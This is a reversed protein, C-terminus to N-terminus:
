SSCPSFYKGKFLCQYHKLFCEEIVFGTIFPWASFPQLKSGWPHLSFSSCGEVPNLVPNVVNNPALHNCMGSFLIDKKYHYQRDTNDLSGCCTVLEFKVSSPLESQSTSVTPVSLDNVKLKNQYSDLAPWFLILFYDNHQCNFHLILLAM